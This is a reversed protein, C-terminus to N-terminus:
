WPLTHGQYDLYHVGGRGSQSEITDVVGPISDEIGLAADPGGLDTRVWGPTMVLYTRTDQPDRAAVCRILMNLAAKSARYVEWGGQTNGDVSGLESSMAGITGHAPVMHSLAEIVRLPSLTNTLMVKAFLDDPMGGIKEFAGDGIGANVFLLDLRRKGLRSALIAIRGMDTIDITEIDLSEPYSTSLAHLASPRRETAIVRWGRELLNEAMGLGLGRSAGVILATKRTNDSMGM